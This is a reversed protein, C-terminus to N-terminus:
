MSAQVRFEAHWYADIGFPAIYQNQVQAALTKGIPFINEHLLFPTAKITMVFLNANSRVLVTEIYWAFSSLAREFTKM